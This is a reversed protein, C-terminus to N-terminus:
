SDSSSSLINEKDWLIEVDPYARVTGEYKEIQEVPKGRSKSISYIVTSVVAQKACDSATIIAEVTKGQIAQARTQVGGDSSTGSAKALDAPTVARKKCVCHAATVVLNSGILSGSCEPAPQDPGDALEPTRVQVTSQYRNSSDLPGPRVAAVRSTFSSEDFPPSGSFNAAVCGGVFLCAILGFRPCRGRLRDQIM